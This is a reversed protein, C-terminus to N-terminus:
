RPPGRLPPRLFYPAAPAYRGYAPVSSGQATHLLVLLFAVAVLAPTYDLGFSWKASKSVVDGSLAVDADHHAASAGPLTGHHPTMDVLHLSAPPEKGDFCLHWHAGDVRAVLLMVCMLTLLM